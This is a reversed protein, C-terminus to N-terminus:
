GRHKKLEELVRIREEPNLPITTEIFEELTMGNKIAEELKVRHGKAYEMKTCNLGASKCRYVDSGIFMGDRFFYTDAIKSCGSFGWSNVTNILLKSPLRDEDKGKKFIVLNSWKSLHGTYGLNIVLDAELDSRTGIPCNSAFVGLNNNDRDMPCPCIEKCPLEQYNTKEM